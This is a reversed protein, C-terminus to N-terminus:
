KKRFDPGYVPQQGDRKKIQAPDPLCGGGGARLHIRLHDQAWPWLGGPGPTRLAEEWVGSGGSTLPVNKVNIM